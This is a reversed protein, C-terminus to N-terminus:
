LDPQDDELRYVSEAGCARDPLGCRGRKETEKERSGEGEREREFRM